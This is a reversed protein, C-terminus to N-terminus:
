SGVIAAKPVVIRINKMPVRSTNPKEFPNWAIAPNLKPAFLISLTLSDTRRAIFIVYIKQKTNETTQAIKEFYM